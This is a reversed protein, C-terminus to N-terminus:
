KKKKLIFTRRDICGDNITSGIEKKIEIEIVQNRIANKKHVNLMEVKKNRM